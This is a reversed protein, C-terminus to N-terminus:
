SDFVFFSLFLYKFHTVVGTRLHHVLSEEASLIAEKTKEYNIKLRSIASDFLGHHQDPVVSDEFQDPRMVSRMFRLTVATGMPVRFVDLRAKMRTLPWRLCRDNDIGRLIDGVKISRADNTISRLLLGTEISSVCLHGHVHHTRFQLGIGSDHGPNREVVADYSVVNSPKWKENQHHIELLQEKCRDMRRTVKDDGKARVMQEKYAHEILSKSVPTSSDIHLTRYLFERHHAREWEIQRFSKVKELVAFWHNAESVEYFMVYLLEKGLQTSFKFGFNIGHADSQFKNISLNRVCLTGKPDQPKKEQSDLYHYFSLIDGDLEVWEKEFATTSFQEVSRKANFLTGGWTRSSPRFVRLYGEM